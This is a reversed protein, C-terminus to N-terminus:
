SILGDIDLLEEDSFGTNEIARVCDSIQEMRSAGIIASTVTPNRLVWSLAMQALSQGRAQALRNLGNLREVLSETIRSKQLFEDRAARSDEPIGRLYRNTLVGQALPSFVICGLGEEDLVDTLGGEIWRDMMSYSPQHILCPTGLEKLITIARRTEDRPYSSIGTYLAKGQKVAQALAGM